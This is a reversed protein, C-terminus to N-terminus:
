KSYIIKGDLITMLVETKLIQEEDIKMIDQDLVVIDALKGVKISGKADEEFASYAADLTLM